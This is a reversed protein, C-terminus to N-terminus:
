NGRGTQREVLARVGVELATCPVFGLGESIARTDAVSRIIDGARAPKYEAEFATESAVAMLRWLQSISTEKGTGVNYVKFGAQLVTAALLNAMAVDRVSVFDRTQSGTGFITPTQGRRIAEAFRSIVGSYASRPDQRHGYVNFYRLATFSMAGEGAVQRGLAEAALKNEAYPSLPKTGSTEAIPLDVTDGYVACTSSLVFRKVGARRASNLLQATGDVNVRQYQIPHQFSESVFVKAALHFVVDIDAVARELTPRDTISGQVFDIRNTVAQLNALHGTSLDDLVRVRWGKSVLLETLHSGIFGAGGTVLATPTM